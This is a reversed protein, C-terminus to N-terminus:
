QGKHLIGSRKATPRSTMTPSAPDGGRALVEAAVALDGVSSRPYGRYRYVDAIADVPVGDWDGDWRWLLLRALDGPRFLLLETAPPNEVAQSQARADLPRHFDGATWSRPDARCARDLQGPRFYHDAAEWQRRF